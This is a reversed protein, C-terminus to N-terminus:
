TQTSQLVMARRIKWPDEYNGDKDPYDVYKDKLRGELKEKLDNFRQELRASGELDIDSFTQCSLEKM